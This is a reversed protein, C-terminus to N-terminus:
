ARNDLSLAHERLQRLGCRESLVVTTLILQAIQRLECRRRSTACTDEQGMAVKVCKIDAKLPLASMVKQPAFTPKHGLASM